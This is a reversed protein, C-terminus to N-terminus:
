KILRAWDEKKLRCCERMEKSAEQKAVTAKDVPEAHVLRFAQWGVLMLALISFSAIIKWTKNSITNENSASNMIEKEILNFALIERSYIM